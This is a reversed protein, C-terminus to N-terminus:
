DINKMGTWSGHWPPPSFVTCIRIQLKKRGVTFPAKCCSAISGYKKLYADLHKGWPAGPRGLTRSASGLAEPGQAGKTGRARPGGLLGKGPGGPGGEPNNKQKKTTKPKLVFSGKKREKRREAKREKKREKPRGSFLLVFCLFLFVFSFLIWAVIVPLPATLM